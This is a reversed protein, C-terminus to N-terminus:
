QESDDPLLEGIKGLLKPIGGSRIGAIRKQLNATLNPLVRGASHKGQQTLLDRAVDEIVARESRKDGRQRAEHLRGILEPDSINAAKPRGPKRANPTPKGLAFGVPVSVFSNLDRRPPRGRRISDAFKACTRAGQTHAQALNGLTLLLCRLEAEIFGGPAARDIADPEDLVQGEAAGRAKAIRHCNAPPGESPMSPLVDRGQYGAELIELSRGVLWNLEEAVRLHNARM